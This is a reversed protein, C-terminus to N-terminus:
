SFNEHNACDFAKSLDYYRLHLIIEGIWKLVSQTLSFIAHAISSNQKFAFQSGSLINFLSKIFTLLRSLNVKEFINLWISLLPIAISNSM